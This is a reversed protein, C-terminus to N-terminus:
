VQKAQKLYDEYEDMVEDELEANEDEIENDDKM